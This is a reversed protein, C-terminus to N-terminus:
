RVKAIKVKVPKYGLRRYAKATGELDKWYLRQFPDPMLSFLSWSCDSKKKNITGVILRNKPDQMCWMTPADSRKM